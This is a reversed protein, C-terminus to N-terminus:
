SKDDRQQVADEDGGCRLVFAAGMLWSSVRTAVNNGVPGERGLFADRDIGVLFGGIADTAETIDLLYLRDSRM